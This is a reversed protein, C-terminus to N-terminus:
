FWEFCLTTIDDFQVAEGAFKDVSAVVAETIEKPSKDASANLVDVLRDVGFMEESTNVAEPM